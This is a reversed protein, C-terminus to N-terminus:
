WITRKIPSDSLEYTPAGTINKVDETVLVERVDTYNYSVKVNDFTLGDVQTVYFGYSPFPLGFMAPHPYKEKDTNTMSSRLHTIGGNVQLDINRLVVNEIYHSLGNDDVFGTISSTVDEQLYENVSTVNEITINSMSSTTSTTNTSKQFVMTGKHLRNRNDLKVFIPAKAGYIEIDRYTVDSLDSGDVMEIAIGASPGTCNSPRYVKCREFTVNSINKETETGIKLGSAPTAVVCDFVSINSMPTAIEGLNKIVIADDGCIIDCNSVTVNSSACIDIGDTNIAYQNRITVGDIVVNESQYLVLTWEPGDEITIGRVEVDDCYAFVITRPREVEFNWNNEDATKDGASFPPIQPDHTASLYAHGSGNVKGSGIIGVNTKRHAVIGTRLEETSSFDSYSESIVIEAGAELKLTINSQLQVTGIKYKGSPFLLTGGGRNNSIDNICNNIDNHTLTAGSNDASIIASGDFLTYNTVDWEATYAISFLLCLIQFLKNM